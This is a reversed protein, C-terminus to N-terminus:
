VSFCFIEALQQPEQALASYGWPLVKAPRIVTKPHYTTEQGEAQLKAEGANRM